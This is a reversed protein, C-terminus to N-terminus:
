CMTFGEELRSPTTESVQLFPVAAILKEVINQELNTQQEATLTNWYM